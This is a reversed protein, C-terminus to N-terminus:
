RRKMLRKGSQRAINSKNMMYRRRVHVTETQGYCNQLAVTPFQLRLREILSVPMPATAYTCLRLHPMYTPQFIPQQILLEYMMPVGFFVTAKTEHLWRPVNRASFGGRIHVYQRSIVSSKFLCTARCLSITTHMVGKPRGTTGSTYIVVIMDELRLPM